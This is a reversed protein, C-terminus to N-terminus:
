MLLRHDTLVFKDLSYYPPKSSLLESRDVGRSYPVTEDVSIVSQPQSSRHANTVDAATSQTQNHVGTSVSLPINASPGNVAPPRPPDETEM